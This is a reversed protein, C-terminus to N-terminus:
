KGCITAASFSTAAVPSKSVWSIKSFPPRAAATRALLIGVQGQGLELDAGRLVPANKNYSFELKEVKLM